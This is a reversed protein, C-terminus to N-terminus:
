ASGPRPGSWVSHSARTRSEAAKTPQVLQVPGDLQHESDASTEDARWYDWQAARCPPCLVRYFWEWRPGPFNDRYLLVQM